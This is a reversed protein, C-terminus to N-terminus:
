RQSPGGPDGGSPWTWEDGFVRRALFRRELDEPLCPQFKSLRERAVDGVLRMADAHTIGGPEGLKRAEDRVATESVAAQDRLRIQLNSSTVSSGLRETLLRSLLNNVAGGAFTYWGLEARRWHFPQAEDHM